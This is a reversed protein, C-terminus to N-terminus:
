FIFGVRGEKAFFKDGAQIAPNAFFINLLV